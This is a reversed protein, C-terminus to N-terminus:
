IDFTVSVPYHDSLYIGNHEDKWTEVSKVCEELKESAFIYDIKLKDQRRGFDHFTGGLDDTLDSLKVKDFNKCYEVSSCQPEENFDGLLVIHADEKKSDAYIREIACKIGNLRAQESEHDLHLNFIRLLTGSQKCRVLTVVCTRPCFSQNEFRSGAIHPTPSLWFTEYSLLEFKEKKIATYVGEGDYDKNRGHGLILYDSLMDKLISISEPVGEQFSIVDPSEKKIKEWIIGARHIFSNQGDERGNWVSRLNFTVIKIM